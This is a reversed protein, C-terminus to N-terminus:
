WDFEETHLEVEAPGQKASPRTVLVRQRAAVGRRVAATLTAPGCSVIGVSTAPELVDFYDALLTPIDPRGREVNWALRSSGCGSSCPKQLQDHKEDLVELTPSDAPVASLVAKEDGVTDGTVFLRVTVKDKLYRTTEAVQTEVWGKMAENRVMWWLTIHQTCVGPERRLVRGGLEELVATCASIGAGGAVLLVHEHRTYDLKYASLGGYPGDLLVPTTPSSSEALALLRPGLGTTPDVRFLLVLKDPAASSSPDRWPANACTYPHSELPLAKLFNVFFHQGATWSHGSGPPLRITVRVGNDPLAEVHGRALHRGNRTLMITFRILVSTFYVAATAWFYHWSTLLANCHVYFFGTFLIAAALHMWKFFEYAMRRLPTLSAFCLWLLPVLAAIGSWYYVKHKVFWSFELQSLHDPNLGDTNPRIERTGQVVFPFTHLLSLFLFLFSLWQHFVQLKEHSCGVIFGILNVKAGLALIFPFCGLALLGTRIALPPSGVNWRSRYYPTQAFTWVVAFLYFVVILLIVGKTPFRFWGIAKPQSTEVYRYLAVTRLYFPSRRIRRAFPKKLLGSVFNIIGFLAVLGCLVGVAAKAYKPAQEYPDILMEALESPTFDSTDHRPWLTISGM